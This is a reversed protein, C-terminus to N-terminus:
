ASTADQTVSLTNGDPDKFWVVQAGGPATWVGDADQGIGDVRLLEVGREALGRAAARADPVTWGLITFPAPTLQEVLTVRLRTGDADFVCAFGDDELLPLGLAGGFFERARALDTAPAFAVVPASELM